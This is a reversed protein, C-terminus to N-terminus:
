QAAATRESHGCTRAQELLRAIRSPLEADVVQQSEQRLREGIKKLTAQTMM